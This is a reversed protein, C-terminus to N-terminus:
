TLIVGGNAPRRAPNPMVRAPARAVAKRVVPPKAVNAKFKNAKLKQQVLINPFIGNFLGGLTVTFGYGQLFTKLKTNKIAKTFSSILFLPIGIILNLFTGYTGWAGLYDYIVPIGDPYMADLIDRTVYAQILGVGAGTGMIATDKSFQAKVM